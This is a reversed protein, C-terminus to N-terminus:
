PILSADEEEAVQQFFYCEVCTIMKMAFTGQVEGGCFTGAVKWCYRGGNRGGNKGHHFPDIAAPCVGLEESKCGGPERGCKMYEWCNPKM